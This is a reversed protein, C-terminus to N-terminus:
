ADTPAPHFPTSTLRTQARRHFTHTTHTHTRTSSHLSSVNLCIGAMYTSKPLSDVVDRSLGKSQTGIADGLATLEEYTMADPNVGEDYRSACM